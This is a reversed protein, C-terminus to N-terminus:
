RRASVVWAFGPVRLLTGDRFPRVGRGLRRRLEIQKARSLSGHLLRLPGELTIEIFEEEGRYVLPASVGQARVDQFGVERLLRPLLGPRALRLPGPCHELDPPPETLFPRVARDRAGFWPNRDAPGWVALAIRGGPKLLRRLRALALSVDEIFMLGYRAVVRDFRGPIRARAVDALRFRVNRVDRLKARRRAIALMTPSLDVGMVSGPAVLPAIALTPEGLGCGFDLVRQRPKLDLSRILYPDVAALSYLVQPEWREWARANETWDRRV